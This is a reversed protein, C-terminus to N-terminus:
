FKNFDITSMSLYSRRIKRRKFHIFIITTLLLLLLTLLILTVYSIQFQLIILIIQTVLIGLIVFILCITGIRYRALRYIFPYLTRVISLIGTCIGLQNLVDITSQNPLIFGYCLAYNASVNSGIVPESPQCAFQDVVKYFAFRSQFIYCYSFQDSCLENPYVLRVSFICGDTLIVMLLMLCMSLVITIPLRTSLKTSLEYKDGCIDLVIIEKSNSHVQKFGFLSHTLQVLRKIPLMLLVICSILTLAVEVAIVLVTFVSYPIM